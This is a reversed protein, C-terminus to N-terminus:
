NVFSRVGVFSGIRTINAAFSESPLIVKSVVPLIGVRKTGASESWESKEYNLQMDKLWESGRYAM